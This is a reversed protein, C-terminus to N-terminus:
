GLPRLTTVDPEIELTLGRDLAVLVRGSQFIDVVVGKDGASVGDAEGDLEVRM